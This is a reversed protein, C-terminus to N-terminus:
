SNTVLGQAAYTVGNYEDGVAFMDNPMAIVKGTYTLNMNLTGCSDKASLDVLLGLRPTRYTAYFYNSSNDWIGGMAAKGEARSFSIPQLAGPAVAMFENASGLAAQVRKDYAYGYGYQSMLEGLNLGYDACCGAQVYQWYERMTTGGVLLLEPGFGSDDAANRIKNWTKFSPNQTGTNQTEVVIQKQGNVAVSAGWGGTLAVSQNAQQTAVRRELVDMLLAVQRAFLISNDTCSGEYDTLDIQQGVQVNVDTDLTYTSINEGYKETAECGPNPQNLRAVSELHRQQYTLELTRVKGRGPTIEYSIRSRNYPSNLFESFPMREDAGPFAGPTIWMEDLAAQLNPCTAMVNGFYSM